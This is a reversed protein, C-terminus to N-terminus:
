EAVPMRRIAGASDGAPAADMANVAYVLALLAIYAWLMWSGGLWHSTILFSLCLTALGFQRAQSAGRDLLAFLVAVYIVPTWGYHHEWAIPSAMTFSLGAGLFDLLTGGRGDRLPFFMAVALIVASTALTGLYVVVNYPPFRNSNWVSPDGTTYFRNIMGNFSQNALFSEGTRSLERLVHLYDLHNQLGFVWLSAALGIAVTAGWGAIFRWERRLLGWVLFLSLQPKILCILGILVGSASKRGGLWALAALAFMANMWCQIQGLWFAHMMPYYLLAGLAGFVACPWALKGLGPSRRALVFAFMGVVVAEMVIFWWNVRGWDANQPHIGMLNLAYWPLLSSPPYQFKVHDIFFLQYM